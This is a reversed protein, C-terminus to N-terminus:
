LLKCEDEGYVIGLTSGRDWNIHLTGADDVSTVTGTDGQKLKTYQDNMKILEVRAGVPYKKRLVELESKSILRM